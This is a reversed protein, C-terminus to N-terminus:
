QGAGAAPLVLSLVTGQGPASDVEVTANHLEIIEKFIALGLGSGPVDPLTRARYFPDYMRILQETNMGIGRDEVRVEVGALGRHEQPRVTVTVTTDAPSYSLANGIVSALAAQLRQPDAAVLPVDPAITLVIRANKGQPALTQLSQDLVDAMSHMGMRLGARGGAEIRALDLLQNTVSILVKAQAHIINVLEQGTQQDFERKVLLESFGLVSAMPTRLEHTATALYKSRRADRERTAAAADRRHAVNRVVAAYRRKGDLRMARVSFEMPFTTNDLRRGTCEFQVTQGADLRAALGAASEVMLTRGQRGKLEASTCGYLAEAAPNLSLIAGEEDLLMVGDPANDLLARLWNEHERQEVLHSQLQRAAVEHTVMGALDRLVLREEDSFQRPAQDILCLTGIRIGDPAFIPHAAYFRVDLAGLAAPNGSCRADHTADEIVTVGDHLMAHACFSSGRPTAALETGVRSKFWQREGDILTVMAIPVHFLRAALRTIRDFREEPPTDLINLDLLVALRQQEDPPVIAELM